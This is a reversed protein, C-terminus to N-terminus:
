LCVGRAGCLVALAYVWLVVFGVILYTALLIAARTRRRRAYAVAFPVGLLLSVGYPALEALVSVGRPRPWIWLLYITMAALPAAMMGAILFTRGTRM